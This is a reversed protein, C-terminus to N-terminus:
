KWGRGYEGACPICVFKGDKVRTRHEAVMEGCSACQVSRFIRAKEPVDPEIEKIIFLDDVPMALIKDIIATQREHFEKLEEQTATGGMVKPRLAAAQPDIREVVPEPRQVLRIARNYTRDIFTYAHKGFDRLILNGKGISCGAVVQIADVGCADNEVICVLEEDDSRGARLADMAYRAARYGLALGPCAHGHFAVADDYSKIPHTM